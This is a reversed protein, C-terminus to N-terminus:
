IFKDEGVHGYEINMHNRQKDSFFFDTSHASDPRSCPEDMGGLSQPVASMRIEGSFDVKIRGYGFLM